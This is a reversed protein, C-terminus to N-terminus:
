KTITATRLNCMLSEICDIDYNLEIKNQIIVILVNKKFIDKAIDDEM